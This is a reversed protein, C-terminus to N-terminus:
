QQKPLSSADIAGVLEQETTALANRREVLQNYQEILAKTRRILANHNNVLSNFGPVSQNYAETRGSSLKSDLSKKESDIKAESIVIEAQNDDISKKLNNLQNDYDKVQNELDIFTQEYKESFAVIAKRDKFYRGYYSELEPSLNQVESALISHLESPVISPDKARYDEITKKLRVDTVSTFFDTTMTDVKKREKTSLREYFAHLVEHAATVQVVGSLRPDEVDLLFIGKSEVFCGLVISQETSTCSSRFTPKDQLAPKNVYFVKRAHDNMTTEDALVVIRSPPDYSRLAFWDLIDRQNLIGYISVALTVISLLGTFSTLVKKM